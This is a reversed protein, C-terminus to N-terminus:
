PLGSEARGYAPISRWGNKWCQVLMGVLLTVIALRVINLPDGQTLILYPWPTFLAICLYNLCWDSSRAMVILLAPLLLTCDQPYAHHSILLGGVLAAALAYEFDSRRSILWVAVATALGLLLEMLWGYPVGLLLGHFNPMIQPEPAIGPRTLIDLYRNPSAAAFSIAALAAGGAVLGGLLRWRKQGIILLPLLLFLHFKIACLSLVVGATFPRTRYIRLSVAFLLLLFTLDQGHAIALILPLSWCCALVATKRDPIRWLLIFAVLAGSLLAQWVFYSERYPLKGLPWLLVAYFPPRIYALAEGFFGATQMQVSSAQQPDYLNSSGVLRAGAYFSLYDNRGSWLYHLSDRMFFLVLALGFLALAWTASSPLTKREVPAPPAAAPEPICAASEATRPSFLHM